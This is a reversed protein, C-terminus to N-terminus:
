AMSKFPAEEAVCVKCLGCFGPFAVLCANVLSLIFTLVILFFGVELSITTKISVNLGTQEQLYDEWKDPNTLNSTFTLLGAALTFVTAVAFLPATVKQARKVTVIGGMSLLVTIFAALTTALVLFTLLLAIPWLIMGDDEFATDKYYKDRMWENCDDGDLDVDNDDCIGKFLFPYYTASIGSTEIKM